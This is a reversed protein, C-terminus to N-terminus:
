SNISVAGTDQAAFQAYQIYVPSGLFGKLGKLFCSSLHFQKFDNKRDYKRGKTHKKLVSVKREDSGCFSGAERGEGRLHIVLLCVFVM